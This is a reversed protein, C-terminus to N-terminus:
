NKLGKGNEMGDLWEHCCDLVRGAMVVALDPMGDRACFFILDKGGDGTPVIEMGATKEPEIDIGSEEKVRRFIEKDEFLICPTSNMKIGHYQQFGDVLRADRSFVVAGGGTIVDRFHQEIEGSPMSMLNGIPLHHCKMIGHEGRFWKEGALLLLGGRAEICRTVARDVVAVREDGTLTAIGHKDLMEILIDTLADAPVDRKGLSDTVASTKVAIGGIYQKGGDERKLAAYRANVAVNGIKRELADAGNGLGIERLKGAVIGEMPDDDGIVLFVPLVVGPNIDKITDNIEDKIITIVDLLHDNDDHIMVDIKM